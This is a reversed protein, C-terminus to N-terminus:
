YVSELYCKECYVIEPRELAYNTKIEDGCKMCNRNYLKRPNSLAMREKYRVDNHKRPLPLNM